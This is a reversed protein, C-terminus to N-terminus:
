ETVHESQHNRRNLIVFPSDRYGRCRLRDKEAFNDGERAARKYSNSKNNPRSRVITKRERDRIDTKNKEWEKQSLTAAEGLEKNVKEQEM